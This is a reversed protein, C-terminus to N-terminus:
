LQDTCQRYLSLRRNDLASIPASARQRLVRRPARGPAAPM